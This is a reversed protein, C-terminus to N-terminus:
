LLQTTSWGNVVDGHYDESIEYKIDIGSAAICGLLCNTLCTAWSNCLSRAAPHTLQGFTSAPVPLPLCYKVSM